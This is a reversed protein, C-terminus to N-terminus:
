AALRCNLGPPIRAGPNGVRVRASFTGSAADIHPDVNLV